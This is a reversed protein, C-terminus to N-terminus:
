SWVGLVCLFIILLLCGLWQGIRQEFEEASMQRAKTPRVSTPVVGRGTFGLCHYCYEITEWYETTTGCRPCAIRLSEIGRADMQVIAQCRGCLGTVPDFLDSQHCVECRTPLSEKLIKLTKNPM